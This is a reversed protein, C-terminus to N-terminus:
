VGEKGRSTFQLFQPERSFISSNGPILATRYGAGLGQDARIFPLATLRATMFVRSFSLAAVPALAFM